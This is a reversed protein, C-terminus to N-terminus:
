QLFQSTHPHAEVFAVIANRSSAPLFATSTWICEKSRRLIDPMELLWTDLNHSSTSSLTGSPVIM